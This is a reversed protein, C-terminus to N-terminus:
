VLGSDPREGRCHDVGHNLGDWGVGDDNGQRGIQWRENDGRGTVRWAWLVPLQGPRPREENKLSLLTMDSNVVRVEALVM